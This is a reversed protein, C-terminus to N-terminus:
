AQIVSSMFRLKSGTQQIAPSMSVRILVKIRLLMLIDSLFFKILIFCKMLKTCTINDHDIM